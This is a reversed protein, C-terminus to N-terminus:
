LGSVLNELKFSVSKKPLEYYIDPEVRCRLISAIDRLIADQTGRYQKVVPISSPWRYIRRLPTTVGQKTKRQANKVMEYLTDGRNGDSDSDSDSDSNTTDDDSDSDSDSSSTDDDDDSIIDQFPLLMRKRRLQQLKEKTRLGRLSAEVEKIADNLTKKRKDLKALTTVLDSAVVGRSKNTEMSTASHVKIEEHINLVYFMALRTRKRQEASDTLRSYEQQRETRMRKISSSPVIDLDWFREHFSYAKVLSVITEGTLALQQKKKGEVPEDPYKKMSAEQNVWDQYIFPMGNGNSEEMMRLNRLVGKRVCAAATEEGHEELIDAIATEIRDITGPWGAVDENGNTALNWSMALANYESKVRFAPPLAHLEKWVGQEDAALLHYVAIAACYSADAINMDPFSNCCAEAVEQLSEIDAAVPSFLLRPFGQLQITCTEAVSLLGDLLADVKPFMSVENFAMTDVDEPVRALLHIPVLQLVNRRRGRFQMLAEYKKEKLDKIRLAKRIATQVVSDPLQGLTEKKREQLLRCAPGLGHKLDYGQNGKFAPAIRGQAGQLMELVRNAAAKRTEDEFAKKMAPKPLARGGKMDHQQKAQPLRGQNLVATITAQVWKELNDRSKPIPVHLDRAYDQLVADPYKQIVIDTKGGSFCDEDSCIYDYWYKSVRNDAPFTVGYYTADIVKRQAQPLEILPNKTSSDAM